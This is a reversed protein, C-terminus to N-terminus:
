SAMSSNGHLGATMEVFVPEGLVEEVVEEVPQEVVEPVVEEIIEQEM